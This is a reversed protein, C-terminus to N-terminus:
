FTLAITQLGRPQPRSVPVIGPRFNGVFIKEFHDICDVFHRRFRALGHRLDRQVPEQLTGGHSTDNDARAVFLLEPLVEAGDAPIEGAFLHRLEIGGAFQGGGVRVPM